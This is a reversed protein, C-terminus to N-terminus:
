VRRLVARVAWQVFYFASVVVNLREAKRYLNWIRRLAVIKNSSLSNNPRRYRVLNRNLGHAIEGERLIRFWLATDESEIVPMELREKEICRTDFLVTSTFITTNGLAQRYSIQEPVKVIKGTGNGNEDAFEYGTFSFAANRNQMFSVQASLKDPEWIDDADLYGVYVGEAAQMGMNRARAAGINGGASLVRIRPDDFSKICDLSADTSGNEVLILEWNQYDQAMVSKITEAIYKEANYVPVIISVKEEM